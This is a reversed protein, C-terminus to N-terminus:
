TTEMTALAASVTVFSGFCIILDDAGAAARAAQLASAVDPLCHVQRTTTLHQALDVAAMGREGSTSALWWASVLEVLPELTARHDKDHLMGCVALIRRRGQYGALQRALCQAAAPNHGVDLRIEPQDALLQWRGRLQAQGAARLVQEAPEAPQLRWWTALATAVNDPMLQPVPLSVETQAGAVDQRYRWFQGVQAWSFDAGLQWLEAGQETAVARISAPPDPDGCIVPCGPRIIGAKERGIQERDSGLFAEHDVGIRTIVSITPTVINVADLRGGLGIELVALDPQARAILWLAALTGFEFYTLSTTQRAQEVAAFARCHESTALEQGNLRVREAYQELHPSTYTGTSWGHALAMQELLRVVSGKGNTGAVLIVQQGPSPLQLREAVQRVRELGLDIPRHHIAELYTLWDDLSASTPDPAQGM